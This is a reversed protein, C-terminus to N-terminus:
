VTLDASSKAHAPLFWSAFATFLAVAAMIAIMRIWPEGTAMRFRLLEGATMLWELAGLALLIRVAWRIAPVPIFAAIGVVVCLAVVIMNGTRLFHAGLLLAALSAPIARM